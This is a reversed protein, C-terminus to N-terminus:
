CGPTPICTLSHRDSPYKKSLRPIWNMFVAMGRLLRARLMPREQYWPSWSVQQVGYQEFAERTRCHIIRWSTESVLGKEDIRYNGDDLLVEAPEDQAEPTSKAALQLLLEATTSFPKAPFDTDLSAQGCVPNIRGVVVALLIAKGVFNCIALGKVHCVPQRRGANKEPAIIGTLNATANGRVPHWSEVLYASMRPEQEWASSSTATKVVQCGDAYHCDSPFEGRGRQPVPRNVLM